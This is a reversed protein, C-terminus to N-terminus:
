SIAQEVLAQALRELHQHAEVLQGKGRTHLKGREVIRGKAFSFEEHFQKQIDWGGQTIRPTICKTCIDRESMTKKEM